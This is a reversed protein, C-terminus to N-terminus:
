YRRTRDIVNHLPLGAEVRRYTEIVQAACFRPHTITAIHPTISVKPHTWFPHGPAMPEDRQVDLTAGALRGTGLAALIDAEVVHGGRAANILHAGPKMRALFGADILGETEPTLPLLCIVIDADRLLTDLGDPGHRCVLGDVTRAGRSWGQVGYGIAALTVAVARGLEGLGLVGVTTEAPVRTELEEYRGQRQLDRYDDWRRTHTLVALTVWEIMQSTISPDALRILTVGEPVPTESRFVHDVGAGTVVAARLCPLSPLLNIQDWLLAVSVDRPDGIDPWIRYDLDPRLRRLEAGWRTGTSPDDLCAIAM